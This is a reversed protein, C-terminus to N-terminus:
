QGPPRLQAPGANTTQYLQVNKVRPDIVYKTIPALADKLSNYMTQTKALTDFLAQQDPPMGDRGETMATMRAAEGQATAVTSYQYAQAQSVAAAAEGKAQNIAIIQATMGYDLETEKNERQSVVNEYASAPGRRKRDPSTYDDQDKFAYPPHLDAITLDAVEIGSSVADLKDQLIQKCRQQVKTRDGIMIEDASHIAFTRTVAFAACQKVLADPTRVALTEGEGKEYFDGHSLGNYYKEPDSVRWLIKVYTELLQPSGADGTAFQSEMDVMPNDEGGRVMWFEFDVTKQGPPTHLEAGVDAEQLEQTPIRLLQDIPWPMLLHLGPQLLALHKGDASMQNAGLRELVAVQGPRVVRLCSVLIGIVVLAGLARPMMRGIVGMEGERGLGLSQAGLVKLANLWVSSLMPVLPVAQLDVAEQDFEEIGSYSRMSNVLLELGQLLLLAAMIGAAVDSAYSVRLYALVSAVGLAAMGGVGMAFNSNVAEGYGATERKVRTMLFLIVYIGAAALGIVLGLEDVVIPKDFAGAIPFPKDPNARAWAVNGYIVFYAIVGAMGILVAAAITTVLRQFGTDLTKLETESAGAGSGGDAAAANEGFMMRFGSATKEAPLDVMEARQRALMLGWGALGVVVAQGIAVMMGAWFSAMAYMVGGALLIGAILILGALAVWALFEARKM